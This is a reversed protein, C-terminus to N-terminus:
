TGAGGGFVAGQPAPPTPTASGQPQAGRNAALRAVVVALGLMVWFHADTTIGSFSLKQVADAAIGFGLAAATCRLFAPAARSRGVRVLGLVVSALLLLYAATGLIGTEGLLRMYESGVTNWEYGSRSQSTVFPLNGFGVGLVPYALFVQWADDFFTRAGIEEVGLGLRFAVLYRIKGIGLGPVALVGILLVTTAFITIVALGKVGSWVSRLSRVFALMFVAAAAAGFMAGRSSAFLFMLLGAVFLAGAALRRGGRVSWMYAFVLPLVFLLYNGYNLPEVFTARPRPVTVGEVGLSLEMFRRELNTYLTNRLDLFPWGRALALVEYLGYIVALAAGALVWGTVHSLDEETRCRNVVLYLIGAMLLLQGVQIVSRLPTGRLGAIQIYFVDIRLTMATSAIAVTIFALLYTLQRTRRPHRLNGELLSTTLAALGLLYVLRINAGVDFVYVAQLPLTLLMLSFLRATLKGTTLYVVGWLVLPLAIVVAGISM